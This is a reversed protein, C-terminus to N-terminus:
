YPKVFKGNMLSGFLNMLIEEFYTGSYGAPAAPVSAAFTQYCADLWPQNVGMGMLCYEGTYHVGKANSSSLTGTKYDYSTIPLAAPNNATATTIFNAMGMLIKQATPDQNWYMDWAIRWPIRVSEKDFLMYTTAASNNKPDVPEGAANSWDPFLGCGNDQIQSMYTYNAALVANWDHGPDILAFLKLAAPSFYSLNYVDKNMWTHGPRILLNAPNIGKEFILSAVAIADATYNANGTKLGAIALSTAVDIDADLASTSAGSIKPLGTFSRYMWPMLGSAATSRAILNYAWLADFLDWDSHIAALLMGYGIGESVTCGLKKALAPTFNRTGWSTMGEIVCKGEYDGGGDWVVRAPTVVKGIKSTMIGTANADTFTSYDLTSGGAKEEDLTMIWRNKWTAYMADAAAVGAGAPLAVASVTQGGESASSAVGGNDPNPNSDPVVSNSSQDPNSPDVEPSSTSSDGGCAALTLALPLTWMFKKIEM